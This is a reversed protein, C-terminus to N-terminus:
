IRSWTLTTLWRPSSEWCYLLLPFCILLRGASCHDLWMQCWNADKSITGILFYNFDSNCTEITCHDNQQAFNFHTYLWPCFFDWRWSCWSLVQGQFPGTRNETTWVKLQLVEGEQMTLLSYNASFIHLTFGCWDSNFEADFTSALTLWQFVFFASTRM